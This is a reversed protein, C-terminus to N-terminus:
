CNLSHMRTLMCKRVSNQSSYALHLTSSYPDCDLPGAPFTTRKCLADFTHSIEAITTLVQTCKPLDFDLRIMTLPPSSEYTFLNHNRYNSNLKHIRKRKLNPLLSSAHLVAHPCFISLQERNTNSTRWNPSKRNMPINRASPSHAWQVLPCTM